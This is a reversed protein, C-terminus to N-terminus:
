IIQLQTKLFFVHDQCPASVHIVWTQRQTKPDTPTKVWSKKEHTMFKVWKLMLCFIEYQCVFNSEIKKRITSMIEGDTYSLINCINGTGRRPPRRPLMKHRLQMNRRFFTFVSSRNLRRTAPIGMSAQLFFKCSISNM